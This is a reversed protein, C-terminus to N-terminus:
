QSCSLDDGRTLIQIQNGKRVASVLEQGDGLHQCSSAGPHFVRHLFRLGPAGDCIGSYPVFGDGVRKHHLKVRAAKNLVFGETCSFNQGDFVVNEGGIKSLLANALQRKGQRQLIGRRILKDQPQGYEKCKKDHPRNKLINVVIGELREGFLLYIGIAIGTCAVAFVIKLRFSHRMGNMDGKGYFQAGFISIGSLGGFISLMHVNLVTNAISAASIAETGLSGVMINDLLSVFSSIFQQVIIPILLTLVSRYFSRSGILKKFM